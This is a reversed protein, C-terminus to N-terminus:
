AGSFREDVERLLDVSKKLHGMAAYGRGRVTTLRSPLSVIANDIRAFKNEVDSIAAL